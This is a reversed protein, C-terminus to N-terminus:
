AASRERLYTALDSRHHRWAFRELNDRTKGLAQAISDPSEGMNVLHDVEDMLEEGKLILDRKGSNPTEDPDDINEWGLPPVYGHRRAAGKVQSVSQCPAPAVGSLAAYATEIAARIRPTTRKTTKASYVNKGGLGCHEGIIRDSWGLANLAQIRRRTGTADINPQYRGYAKQRRAERQRANDLERCPTCRCGGHHYCHSNIGHKHVHELQCLPTV